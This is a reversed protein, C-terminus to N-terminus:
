LSTLFIIWKIGGRGSENANCKDTPKTPTDIPLTNDWIGWSHNLCLLGTISVLDHPQGSFIMLNMQQVFMLRSLSTDGVLYIVKLLKLTLLNFTLNLILTSQFYYVYKNSQESPKYKTQSPKNCFHRQIKKLNRSFIIDTHITTHGPIGTKSFTRSSSSNVYSANAKFCAHLKSNCHLYESNSNAWM